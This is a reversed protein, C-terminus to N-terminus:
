ERWIRAENVDNKIGASSFFDETIGVRASPEAYRPTNTIVDALSLGYKGARSMSFAGSSRCNNYRPTIPLGCNSEIALDEAVLLSDNDGNQILNILIEEDSM